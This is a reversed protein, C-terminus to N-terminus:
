GPTHGSLRAGLGENLFGHDSSLILSMKQTQISPGMKAALRKVKCGGGRRDRTVAGEEVALLSLSLIPVGAGPLPRLEYGVTKVLNSPYKRGTPICIPHVNGCFARLMALSCRM